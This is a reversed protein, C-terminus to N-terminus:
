SLILLAGVFGLGAMVVTRGDARQHGAAGPPPPSTPSGAAPKSSDPKAGDLRPVDPCTANQARGEPLTKLVAEPCRWPTDGPPFKTYDALSTFLSSVCDIQWCEKCTTDYLIYHCDFNKNCAAKCEDLNAVINDARIGKIQDPEHATASAALALLVAPQAFKMRTYSSPVGAYAIHL